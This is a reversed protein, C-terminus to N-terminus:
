SRSHRVVALGKLLDLARALAPDHVMPAEEDEDGVRAATGRVTNTSFADEIGTGERRERVLEAENFRQRHAPHNTAGSGLTLDPASVGNTKALLRFADAYYKREDQPSVSVAIDPQVGKSSLTSGDGLQVPATGIRLIEGDRLPFDQMIMAQGATRTGLILGVGTERLVAALAEAPGRTEENVLVAVPSVLAQSKEKSKVVGDGWNLLAQEKKVFLDATAVAAAYDKGGAYRLDLVLGRLQNTGELERCSQQLAQALGNDVRRVRAYAIDGDYLSARSVASGEESLPAAPENTVLSVKPSLETILGNVAARDLEASSMRAHARVLDYVEKFDATGNTSQANSGWRGVLLALFVVRFWSKRLRMM